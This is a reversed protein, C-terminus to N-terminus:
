LSDLSFVGSGVAASRGGDIMDRETEAPRGNAKLFLSRWNSFPFSFSFSFSDSFCGTVGGSWGSRGELRKPKAVSRLFRESADRIDEADSVARGADETISRERSLEDEDEELILAGM